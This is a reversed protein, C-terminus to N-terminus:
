AALLEEPQPLLIGLEAGAFAQVQNMYASMEDTPLKTTTRREFQENGINVITPTLFKNKFFEHLTDTDNGTEKAIVGVWMWYLALQSLSRKKVHRKIEITWPREVNLAAIHEIVRQRMAEDRIIIQTM